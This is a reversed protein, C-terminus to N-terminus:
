FQSVDSYLWTPRNVTTGNSRRVGEGRKGGRLDTIDTSSKLQSTESWTTSINSPKLLQRFTTTTNDRQNEKKETHSNTHEISKQPPTPKKRTHSLRSYFLIGQRTAHSSTEQDTGESHRSLPMTLGSQSRKTLPTHTNLHLRGGASKASHGPDKVHWQPM